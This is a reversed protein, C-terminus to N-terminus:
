TYIYINIINYKNLRNKPSLYLQLDEGVLARTTEKRIGQIACRVLGIFCSSGEDQGNGTCQKSGWILSFQFGSILSIGRDGQLIPDSAKKASNKTWKTWTWVRTRVLSWRKRRPARRASMNQFRSCAEVMIIWHAFVCVSMTFDNWSWFHPLTGMWLSADRAPRKFINFGRYNAHVIQLLHPIFQKGLIKASSGQGSMWHCQHSCQYTVLLSAKGFYTSLTPCIGDFEMLPYWSRTLVVTLDM